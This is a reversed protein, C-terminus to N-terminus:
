AACAPRAVAEDLRTLLPDTVPYVTPNPSYTTRADRFAACADAGRGLADLALGRELVGEAITTLMYGEIPGVPTPRKAEARMLVLSADITKLAQDPAGSLRQTRAVPILAAGDFPKGRAQSDAAWFQAVTTFFPLAERPADVKLLGRGIQQFDDMFPKMTADGTWRGTAIQGDLGSGPAAFTEAGVMVVVARAEAIAADREGLAALTRVRSVQIRIMVTEFSVAEYRDRARPRLDRLQAAAQAYADAAARNDGVREQLSGVTNLTTILDTVNEIQPTADVRARQRREVVKTLDLTGRPDGDLRAERLLDAYARDLVAEDSRDTVGAQRVGALVGAEDGKRLRAMILERWATDSPELRARDEAVALAADAEGAASLVHRMFSWAGYRLDNDACHEIVVKTVYAGDFPFPRDFPRLAMEWGSVYASARPRALPAALRAADAACVAAAEKDDRAQAPSTIVLAAALILLARM